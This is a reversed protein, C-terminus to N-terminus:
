LGVISGVRYPLCLRYRRQAFSVEVPAPIFLLNTVPQRADVTGLVYIQEPTREVTFGFPVRSVQMSFLM